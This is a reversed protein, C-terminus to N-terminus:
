SGMTAKARKMHSRNVLISDRPTDRLTMGLFEVTPNFVPLFSESCPETLAYPDQSPRLLLSGTIKYPPADIAVNYSVRWRLWAERDADSVAPEGDEAPMAITVDTPDVAKLGLAPALPESGDCSGLHASNVNILGRKELAVALKGGQVLMADIRGTATLAVFHAPRRRTVVIGAVGTDPAASVNGRGRDSFRAELERVRDVSLLRTLNTSPNISM